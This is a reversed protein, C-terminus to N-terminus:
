DAEKVNEPASRQYGKSDVTKLVKDLEATLRAIKAAGTSAMAHGTDQKPGLKAVVRLGPAVVVTASDLEAQTTSNSGADECIRIATEKSLIEICQQHPGIRQTDLAVVTFRQGDGLQSGALRDAHQQKLSRIGSIVGFIADVNDEDSRWQPAAIGSNSQWKCEMVSMEAGSGRYAHKQWLEETVFPMFPHLARLVIDLSGLLINVVLAPDQRSASANGFLAPKSVEIYRDCLDRQVFERVAEGAVAPRFTKM